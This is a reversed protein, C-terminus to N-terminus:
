FYQRVLDMGTYLSAVEDAYGNFMMTDISPAFLAALGGEG